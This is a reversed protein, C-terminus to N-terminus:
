YGKENHAKYAAQQMTSKNKKLKLFFEIIILLYSCVDKLLKM